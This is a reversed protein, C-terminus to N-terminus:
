HEKESIGEMPDTKNKRKIGSKWHDEEQSM